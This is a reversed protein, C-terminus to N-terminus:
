SKATDVTGTHPPARSFSTQEMPPGPVITALLVSPALFVSRTLFNVDQVASVFNVRLSTTKAKSGRLSEVQNFFVM